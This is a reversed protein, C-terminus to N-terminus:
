HLLVLKPEKGQSDNRLKNLTERIHKASPKNKLSEFFLHALLFRIKCTLM